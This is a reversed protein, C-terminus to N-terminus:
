RVLQPPHLQSARRLYLAIQLMVGVFAAHELPLFLTSAFTIGCVAADSRSAKIVTVFYRWDIRGFVVM